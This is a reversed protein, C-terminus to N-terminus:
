TSICCIRRIIVYPFIARRATYKRNQCTIHEFIITYHETRCKVLIEIYLMDEHILFSIHVLEAARFIQLATCFVAKGLRLFKEVLPSLNKKPFAM